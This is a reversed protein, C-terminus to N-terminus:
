DRGSKAKFSNHCHKGGARKVGGIESYFPLDLRDCADAFHLADRGPLLNVSVVFGAIGM